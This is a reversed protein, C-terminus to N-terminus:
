SGGLRDIKDIREINIQDRGQNIYQREIQTASQKQINIIQYAMQRVENAFAQEEDIELELHKSVKALTAESGNQELEALAAEARENGQFKAKIRDRLGKVLELAGGM